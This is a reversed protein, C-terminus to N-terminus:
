PAFSLGKEGLAIRLKEVGNKGMGHLAMIETETFKTLQELNEIGAGALARQAPKAIVKEFENPM